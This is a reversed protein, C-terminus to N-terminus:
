LEIFLCTCAHLSRVERFIRRAEPSLSKIAGDPVLTEQANATGAAKPSGQAGSSDGGGVEKGGRNFFATPPLM